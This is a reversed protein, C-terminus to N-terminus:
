AIRRWAAVLVLGVAFLLAGSPEPVPAVPAESGSPQAFANDNSGDYQNCEGGMLAIALLILALYRM